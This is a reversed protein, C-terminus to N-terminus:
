LLLSLKKISEKKLNIERVNDSLKLTVEDDSGHIIIDMTIGDCCSNNSDRTIPVSVKM